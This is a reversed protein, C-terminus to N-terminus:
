ILPVEVEVHFAKNPRKDIVQRGFELLKDEFEASFMHDLVINKNLTYVEVKYKIHDEAKQTNNFDRGLVSFSVYAKTPAGKMATIAICPYEMEDVKLSLAKSFCEHFEIDEFKNVETYEYFESLSGFYSAKSVKFEKSYIQSLASPPEGRDGREYQSSDYENSCGIALLIVIICTLASITKELM